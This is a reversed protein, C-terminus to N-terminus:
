ASMGWTFFACVVACILMIFGVTLPTMDTHKVGNAVSGLGGGVLLAFIFGGVTVPAM